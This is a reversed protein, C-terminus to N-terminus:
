AKVVLVTVPAETKGHVLSVQHEGLSKIPTGIHVSAANVEVGAATLAAAVEESTLAKYLHDQENADVTVKVPTDGLKEVAATFADTDAAASAAQKDKQSELRKVNAPTAALAMGRPILMNQARGAPVEVVEHRRGLKAVDQLLIVKM